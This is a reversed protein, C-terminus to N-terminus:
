RTVTKFKWFNKKMMLVIKKWLIDSCNVLCFVMEIKEQYSILLGIIVITLQLQTILLFRINTSCKLYIKGFLLSIGASFLMVDITYCLSTLLQYKTKLITRTIPSVKFISASPQSNAVIKFDSSCIIWVTFHWYM